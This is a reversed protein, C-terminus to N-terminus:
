PATDSLVRAVEADLATFALDRAVPFWDPFTNCWAIVEGFPTDAPKRLADPASAARLTKLEGAPWGAGAMAALTQQRIGEWRKRLSKELDNQTAACTLVVTQEAMAQQWWLMVQDKQGDTLALAPTASLALALAIGGRAARMARSAPRPGPELGPRPDQPPLGGM